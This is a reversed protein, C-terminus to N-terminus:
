RFYYWYIIFVILGLLAILGFNNTFLSNNLYIYPKERNKWYESAEEEMVELRDYYDPYENIHALAIKGTKVLDNDTVNTILNVKGHELEVELSRKFYNLPILNTDIKLKKAVLCVDRDSIKM